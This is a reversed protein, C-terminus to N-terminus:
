LNDGMMKAIFDMFIKKTFPKSIYHSCGAALFEEKDGVMAYATVAAIPINKYGAIQRIKKTTDVGSFGRTLNIDMLIGDYIKMTAKEIATQGDKAIDLNYFEKLYKKFLLISMDDDEVILINKKNNSTKEPTILDEQIEKKEYVLENLQMKEIPFEISFTSGAGVESYVSICGGLKEVFRKTITLGLGTGEFNRSIGESVQRFEEWIIKQQDEPIGIGTDTVKIIISEQQNEKQKSIDINVGGSFTFKIANNVLNNIIQKLIKPDSKFMISSAYTSKTIYLNKLTAAAQFSEIVEGIIKVLDVVEKKIELKGAEVRSLDLILNLTELLRNGSNFIIKAMGAIEKDAAEDKIIEAYGLIGILPTRLEHSMNALFNSKLRSMEEAKDKAAILEEIMKKNETIDVFMGFSGKYIGNSDIIHSASVFCWIVDGDKKVLRREYIERERRRRGAQRMSYDQLDEHYVLERFNKKSLEEISYGLMDVFKQNASTINESEDSVCIGENATDFINRFRAESDRLELESNKRLTVDRIVSLIIKSEGRVVFSNSIELWVKKGNHLIIEREFFPDVAGNKVREIFRNQVREQEETSYIISMPKGVLERQSLGVINCFADNVLVNIGEENVLRMGDFSKEWVSRFMNESKILEQEARKRDSIDRVMAQLLKKNDLEFLNLNIETDFIQGGCRKHQWEFCQPIGSLAASIKEKSKKISEIGDPQYEPSIEWPKHMLLEEPSCNFMIGAKPNCEIFSDEDLIFIADNSNMFLLKYKSEAKQLEIETWKQQTIDEVVGEYYLTKGNENKIARASERVYIITGDVKKWASQIGIFEGSKEMQAKFSERPYNIDFGNKELNRSALEEFSNFGLMKILAPNALLIKGDVSTRYIGVVTNEFIGRYREEAEKLALETDLKEKLAKKKKIASDVSTNLRHLNDKIIYDDAGAKMVAVATEENISGTILIFPLLPNIHQTLILARMGDFYPLTYDSLIINPNFSNLEKVFNEEKEVRHITLEYNRGLEIAILKADNPNDEVMLVKLSKKM